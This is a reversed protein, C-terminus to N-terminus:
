VEFSTEKRNSALLKCGFDGRQVDYARLRPSINANHFLVQWATRIPTRHIIYIPSPPDADISAPVERWGTENCCLM